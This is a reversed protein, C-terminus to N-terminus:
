YVMELTSELEAITMDEAKKDVSKINVPRLAGDSVQKALNTKEKGIAREAVQVYPKMYKETLETVSKSPDRQIELWVASTVADNIDPDFADNKQDLEPYFRIVERAEANIRNVTREKDVELRAITRLDDITLEREGDQNNSSYQPYEGQPVDGSQLEALKSTLDEIVSDKEKVKDVLKHIRKEAGTLKGDAEVGEVSKGTKESQTESSEVESLNQADSSSDSVINEDDSENVTKQEEDM